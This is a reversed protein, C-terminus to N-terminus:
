RKLQEDVARSKAERKAVEQASEQTWQTGEAAVRAPNLKNTKYWRPPDKKLAAIMAPLEESMEHQPRWGIVQEARSVDLEYHMDSQDIMWPQVFPDQDLVDEQVWQGGKALAKPIERTEWEENHILRGLRQQLDGYGLTETEGILLTVEEPLKARRDIVRLMADIMDDIHLNPQGANLDGPYVHSVLKREFINAIQQALFVANTNEDYVGALRLIAIPIKGREAHLVSETDLKSQPYPTKPDLPADEDIKQGRESRAHVLLTSAFIFREVDFSQLLRLLRRTGEVTVAQYKPSPDGSLDYYAALHVVAAISKGYGSQVREFAAQVSDDSTLDTVITEFSSPSTGSVVAELGVVTFRDVLRAVLARGLFGGSGTVLVLPRDSPM